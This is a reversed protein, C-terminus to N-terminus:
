LCGKVVFTGM